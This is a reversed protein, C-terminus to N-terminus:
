ASEPTKQVVNGSSNCASPLPRPREDQIAAFQVSNWCRLDQFVQGGLFFCYKEAKFMCIPKSLRISPQILCVHKESLQRM